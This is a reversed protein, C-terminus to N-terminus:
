EAACSQHHGVLPGSWFSSCVSRFGRTKSTWYTASLCCIFKVINTVVSVKVTVYHLLSKKKSKM